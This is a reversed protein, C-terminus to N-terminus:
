RQNFAADFRGPGATPALLVRRLFTFADAIGFWPNMSNHEWEVAIAGRYEIWLLAERIDVWDEDGWGPSVFAFRRHPDSPALHGVHIGRLGRRRVKSAKAHMNVIWKAFRLIFDVPDVDQPELHSPDFNIGFAEHYSLAALFADLSNADYAIETPHVELVGRVGMEGYADLVPTLKAACDRYGQEVKDPAPPFDYVEGWIGSGTFMNVVGLGLRQAAIGVKILYDQVNAVRTATDDSWIHQPIIAKLKDSAPDDLGQGVLHTSLATPKISYKGVTGLFRECYEEGSEGAAMEPDFHGWCPVEMGTYGIAQMVALVKELPYGAFQGTFLALQGGALVDANAMKDLESGPEVEVGESPTFERVLVDLVGPPLAGFKRRIEGAAEHYTM